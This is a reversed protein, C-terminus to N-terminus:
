EFDSGKLFKGLSHVQQQTWRDVWRLGPVMHALEAPNGCGADGRAPSLCSNRRDPVDSPLVTRRHASIWCWAFLANGATFAGRLASQQVTLHGNRVHCSTAVRLLDM